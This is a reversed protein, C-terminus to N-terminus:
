YPTVDIHLTFAGGTNYPGDVVLFYHGAQMYESFYSTNTGPGDDNCAFQRAGDGCVGEVYVITDYGSGLTSVTLRGQTALNLDYIVDPGTAQTCGPGGVVHNVMGATTGTFVLSSGVQLPVELAGTCTDYTEIQANLTYTGQSTASYGDVIVYYDGPTLNKLGPTPMSSSQTSPLLSQNGPGGDDDCDLQSNANNCDRRVYLVADYNSVSGTDLTVIRGPAPMTFHYLVDPGNSYTAPCSGNRIWSFDNGQNVTSGTVSWSTGVPIDGAINQCASCINVHQCGAVPDCTDATCANGDDCSSTLHRCGQAPDCLDQTCV